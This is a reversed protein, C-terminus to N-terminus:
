NSLVAYARYHAAPIRYVNTCITLGKRLPVISAAHGGINSLHSGRIALFKGKENVALEVKAVLDRGQYDSLFAETRECTWKVPRGIRKAAWLVLPFEPFLSNKTGFNGGIDYSVVRIEEPKVGLMAALEGKQRVVGGSGAHIFYRRSQRDYSGVASRPEMPVGTVRQVWSDLKVVHAAKAFAKDTAEKDGVESDLFVNSRAEDWVKPAHPKAAEATVIAPSLVEYDIEVQEAADKAVALTEAVVLVVAEGVHRVKDVALPYQPTPTLPGDRNVLIVDPLRRQAEIPMTTSADPPIPKLGDAKYDAGTLVALVGKRARAQETHIGKIRAHAHVSRLVFARAQRPLDVDDSFQGAGVLLRADEKRRVPQGIGTKM